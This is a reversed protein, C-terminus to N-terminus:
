YLNYTFDPHVLNGIINYRKYLENIIIEIYDDISKHQYPNDKTINDLYYCLNLKDKNSLNQLYIFVTDIQIIIKDNTKKNNENM